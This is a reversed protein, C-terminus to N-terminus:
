MRRARRTGSAAASCRSTWGRSSARRAPTAALRPRHVRQRWPDWTTQGPVQQCSSSPREAFGRIRQPQLPSLYQSRGRNRVTLSRWGTCAVEVQRM